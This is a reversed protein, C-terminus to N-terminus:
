FIFIEKGKSKCHASCQHTYLQECRLKDITEMASELNGSLDGKNESFVWQERLGLVELEEEVERQWFCNAVAKASIEGPLIGQNEEKYEEDKSGDHCEAFISM